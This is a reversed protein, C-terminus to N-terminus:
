KSSSTFDDFYGRYVVPYNADPFLHRHLEIFYDDTMSAIYDVVLQNKETLEYPTKRKYYSRNVHEIHYKYIPSERNENELDSLLREYLDAMMPKVTVDLASFSVTHNYIKEYNEKKSKQLAKFHKSDLKIYPKGYSNEIINVVLNNIIESNLSGIDENFFDQEVVSRTRIADQRDKGLYAIIDSIRVVAAELTAPLLSDAVSKDEQCQEMLRDFQAFDKMEVPHYEELEIEGNHSAIGHLTQLSINHPFIKDLVRVSQINHLFHRGTHRFYLADLYKEGTHAFPPHGIDHGLSIAEILDVNLHLANGITRAIRSVLQVHLIRRTLDDNKCLSYVQTKDAYRNYYPSHIIKDIDHVFPPRWITGKDRAVQSRRIVENNDFGVNVFEGTRTEYEIKETLEPSVVEYKPMYFEM